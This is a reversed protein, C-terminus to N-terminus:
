THHITYDSMVRKHFHKSTNESFLYLPSLMIKQLPVQEYFHIKKILADLQNWDSDHNTAQNYKM